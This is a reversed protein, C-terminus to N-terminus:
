KLLLFAKNHSTISCPMCEAIAHWAAVKCASRAASGCAASAANIRVWKSMRSPASLSKM